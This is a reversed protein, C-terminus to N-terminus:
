LEASLRPLGLVGCSPTVGSHLLAGPSLLAIMNSCPGMGTIQNQPVTHIKEVFLVQQLCDLMEVPM